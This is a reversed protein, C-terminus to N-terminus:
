VNTIRDYNTPINLLKKCIKYNNKEVIKQCNPLTATNITKPLKPCVDFVKKALTTAKTKM